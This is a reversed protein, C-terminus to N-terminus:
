GNMYNRIGNKPRVPRQRRTEGLGTVKALIHLCPFNWHASLRPKRPNIDQGGGRKCVM